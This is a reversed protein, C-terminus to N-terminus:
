KIAKLLHKKVDGAFKQSGRAKYSIITNKGDKELTIDLFFPENANATNPFTEAMRYYVGPTKEHTYGGDRIAIEKWSCDTNLQPNCGKLAEEMTQFGFERKIRTYLTDIDRKSTLTDSASQKNADRIKIQESAWDALQQNVAGIQACGVMVLCAAILTIKRM